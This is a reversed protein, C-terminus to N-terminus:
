GVRGGLDVCTGVRTLHAQVVRAGGASWHLDVMDELREGVRTDAREGDLRGVGVGDPEGLVTSSLTSYSAHVTSRTSDEVKM